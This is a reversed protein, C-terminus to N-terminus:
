PNSTRSFSASRAQGLPRKANAAADKRAGQDFQALKALRRLEVANQQNVTSLNDLDLPVVGRLSLRTLIVVDELSLGSEGWGWAFSHTDISWHSLAHEMNKIAVGHRQIKLNWSLMMVDLTSTALLLQKRVPDSVVEYVWELWDTPPFSQAGFRCESHPFDGREIRLRLVSSLNVLEARGLEIPATFFTPNALPSGEAPYAEALAWFPDRVTQLYPARRLQDAFPIPEEIIVNRTAMFAQYSSLLLKQLASSFSFSM